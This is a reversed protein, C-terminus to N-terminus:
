STKEITVVEENLTETAPEVPEDSVADAFWNTEVTGVVAEKAEVLVKGDVDKVEEVAEEIVKTEALSKKIKNYAYKIPNNVDLPFDINFATRGGIMNERVKAHKKNLYLALGVFGTKVDCNVIKWHGADIGNVTKAKILAMTEEKIKDQV